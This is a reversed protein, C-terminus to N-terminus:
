ADQPNRQQKRVRFLRVCEIDDNIEKNRATTKKREARPCVRHSHHQPIREHQNEGSKLNYQYIHPSPNRQIRASDGLKQESVATQTKMPRIPMAIYQGTGGVGVIPGYADNLEIRTHGEALLHALFEKRITFSLEGWNEDFEALVSFLMGNSSELHLNDPVEPLRSLKIGDNNQPDDPVGRLYRQLREARDSLFSVHELISALYEQTEHAGTLKDRVMLGCLRCTADIETLKKVVVLINRRAEDFHPQAKADLDDIDAVLVPVARLSCSGIVGLSLAALLGAIAFAGGFTLHPNKM